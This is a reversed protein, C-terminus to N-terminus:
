SQFPLHTPQHADWEQKSPKTVPKPVRPVKTAVEEEEEGEDSETGIDEAPKEGGVDEALEEEEEDLAMLNSSGGLQWVVQVVAKAFKKTYFAAM